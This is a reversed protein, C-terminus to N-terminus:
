NEVSGRQLDNVGKQSEISTFMSQNLSLVTFYIIDRQQSADQVGVHIHLLTSVRIKAYIYAHLMLPERNLVFVSLSNSENSFSTYNSNVRNHSFRSFYIHLCISSHISLFISQIFSHIVTCYTFYIIYEETPTSRLCRCTIGLECKAQSPDVSGTDQGYGGKRAAETHGGHLPLLRSHSKRVSERAGRGRRNQKAPLEVFKFFWLDMARLCTTPLMACELIACHRWPWRVMEACGRCPLRVPETHNGDPPQPSQVAVGSLNCFIQVIEAYGRYPTVGAAGGGGGGGLARVLFRVIGQLCHSRMCLLGYGGVIGLFGCLFDYVFKDCLAQPLHSSLM